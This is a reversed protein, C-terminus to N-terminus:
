HYKGLLSLTNDVKFFPQNILSMKINGGLWSYEISKKGGAHSLVATM